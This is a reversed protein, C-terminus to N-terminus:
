IKKMEKVKTIKDVDPSSLLTKSKESYWPTPPTHLVGVEGSVFGLALTCGDGAVSHSLM